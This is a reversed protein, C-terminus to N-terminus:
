KTRDCRVKSPRYITFIFSTAMARARTKIYRQINTEVPPQSAPPPLSAMILSSRFPSPEDVSCSVRRRAPQPVELPQGDAGVPPPRRPGGALHLSTRRLESLSLKRSSSAMCVCVGHLGWGVGSSSEGCCSSVFRGVGALLWWQAVDVGIQSM